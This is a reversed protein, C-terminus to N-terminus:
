YGGLASGKADLEIVNNETFTKQARRHHGKKKGPLKRNKQNGEPVSPRDIRSLSKGLREWYLSRGAGEEGGVLSDMEEASDTDDEEDMEEDEPAGKITDQDYTSMSAYRGSGPGQVCLLTTKCNAQMSVPCTAKLHTPHTSTVALQLKGADLCPMNGQSPHPTSRVAFYSMSVSNRSRPGQACPVRTKCSTPTSAPSPVTVTPDMSAHLRQM